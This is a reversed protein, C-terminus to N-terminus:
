NIEKEVVLKQVPLPVNGLADVYAKLADINGTYTFDCPYPTPVALILGLDVFRKITSKFIPANKKPCEDVASYYYYLLIEIEFPTM